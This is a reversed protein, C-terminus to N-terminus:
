SCTHLTGASRQPRVRLWQQGVRRQRYGMHVQAAARPLSPRAPWSTVYEVWTPSRMRWSSAISRTRRRRCTTAWSVRAAAAPARSRADPDTLSIQGAESPKVQEGVAESVPIRQKVKAIKNHLDAVRGLLAANADHDAREARDLEVLFRKIGDELQEVRAQLKRDTFNKDRNNVAELKSGDITLIGVAFLKLRRCLLV